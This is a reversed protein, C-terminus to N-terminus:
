RISYWIVFFVRKMTVGSMTTSNRSFVGVQLPMPMTKGGIEHEVGPNKLGHRLKRNKAEWAEGTM